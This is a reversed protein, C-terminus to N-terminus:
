IEESATPLRMLIAGDQADLFVEQEVGDIFVIRYWALHYAGEVDIILLEAEQQDRPSTTIMLTTSAITLAEEYSLDPQINIEIENGTSGLLRSVNGNSEIAVVVAGLVPIGQHSQQLRIIRSGEVEAESSIVLVDNPGLRNNLVLMDTVAEVLEENSNVVIDTDLEVSDLVIDERLAGERNSTQTGGQLAPLDEGGETSEGTEGASENTNNETDVLADDAVNPQDNNQPVNSNQVGGDESGGSIFMYIVVLLGLVGVIFMWKGNSSPKAEVMAEPKAAAASASETDTIPQKKGPNTIPDEVEPMSQPENNDQDSNTM